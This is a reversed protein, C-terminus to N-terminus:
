NRLRIFKKSTSDVQIFYIGAPLVSITQVITNTGTTLQINEKRYIKGYLDTIILETAIPDKAILKVTLDDDWVPNPYLNAIGIKLDDEIC